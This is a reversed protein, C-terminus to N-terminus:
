GSSEDKQGGQSNIDLVHLKYRNWRESGVCVTSNAEEKPILWVDGTDCGIIAAVDFSVADKSRGRRWLECGTTQGQANTGVQGLEIGKIQVREWRGNRQIVRDYGPKSMASIPVANDWEQNAALVDFLAEAANGSRVIKRHKEETSAAVVGSRNQRRRQQSAAWHEQQRRRACEASCMQAAIQIAIFEAGCVTCRQKRARAGYQERCSKCLDAMRKCSVRWKHGCVRCTREHRAMRKARRTEKTANCIDAWKKRCENSCVKPVAGRRTLVEFEQECVVCTGWRGGETRRKNKYARRNAELHRKSRCKPCYWPLNIPDGKGNYCGKGRPGVAFDVGCDQCVTTLEKEDVSYEM